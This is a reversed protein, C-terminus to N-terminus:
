PKGLKPYTKKLIKVIEKKADELNAYITAGAAARHGGGIGTAVAARSLDYIKSDRTRFSLKVTGPNIEIMCIGIDWGIVSKLMNSVESTNLATNNINNEIITQNSISAIAVHDSFYTEVSGLLISIFKLRDSSDSNDIDFIIQHVDPNIKVLKSAADFIKWSPNFYKFGGTDTYIGVYLCAATKKDIKYNFEQLLQYVIQSAAPSKSDILNIDAFKENTLHHDINITRLNKPFEVDGIKSIQKKTSSDLIIFLDYKNIDVSFYSEPIIKDSGPVSKFSLPFESDGQIVTVNKGIKKLFHMMALVSGVSDGDPSPHLHLLINNSKKIESLIKQSIKKSIVM